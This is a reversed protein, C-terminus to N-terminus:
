NLLEERVEVPIQKRIKDIHGLIAEQQKLLTQSQIIENKIEEFPIVQGDKIEELKIVYFGKPGKFVNSTEGAKLALIEPAMEPFPEQTIFGLDGGKSATDSISNLKALESFDSGKLIEVLIENAKIQDKLVIERVRYQPPDILQDKKEIYFKQADQDTVVIKDVLNKAAERVILTRRFEEVAALIDKNKDLGSKEAEEVLLQQRVLEDLVLKKADVNTIDFEPIVEKLASLRENFEELTITWAGVRALQNGSLPKSQNSTQPKSEQPTATNQTPAQTPENNAKTQKKDKDLHDKVSSTMDCGSFSIFLVSALFFKLYLSQKM